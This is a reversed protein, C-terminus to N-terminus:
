QPQESGSSRKDLLEGDAEVKDLHLTAVTNRRFGDETFAIYVKKVDSTLDAYREENLLIRDAYVVFTKDDMIVTVHPAPQLECSICSVNHKVRSVCQVDLMSGDDRPLHSALSRKYYTANCGVFITSFFLLLLTTRSNM